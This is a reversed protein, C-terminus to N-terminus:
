GPPLGPNRNRPCAPDFEDLVCLLTHYGCEGCGSEDSWLSDPGCNPCPPVALADVLEHLEFTAECAVCRLEQRVDPPADNWFRYAVRRESGHTLNVVTRAEVTTTTVEVNTCRCVPCALFSSTM